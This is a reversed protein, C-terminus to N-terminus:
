QYKNEVRKSTVEYVMYPGDNSILRGYEDFNDFYSQNGILGVVQFVYGYIDVVEMHPHVTRLIYEKKKSETEANCKYVLWIAGNEFRVIRGKLKEIEYDMRADLEIESRIEETWLLGLFMLVFALLIPLCSMLLEFMM